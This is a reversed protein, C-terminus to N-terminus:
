QKATAVQSDVNARELADVQLLQASKVEVPLAEYNDLSM